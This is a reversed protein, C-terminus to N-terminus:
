VGAGLVQLGTGVADLFGGSCQKGVIGGDVEDGDGAHREVTAAVTQSAALPVVVTQQGADRGGIFYTDTERILDHFFHRM